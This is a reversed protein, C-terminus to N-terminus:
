HLLQGSEPASPRAEHHPVVGSEIFSKMRILDERLEREPDGGPALTPVAAAAGAPSRLDLRVTVRTGNRVPEFLASGSHDLAADGESRWALMRPRERRTWAVNWELRSDPTEQAIWRARGNGLDQVALLIAFFHPFNDFDNWADFVTEPAARVDISQELHLAAAEERRPTGAQVQRLGGLARGLLTLGAGALVLGAPMRRRLAYAGLAGGAGALAQLAPQLASTRGTRHWGQLAPVGDPSAYVTLRDEVAAVGPIKRLQALLHDKEDVLVAGSLVVHGGDATVSIAHPHAVLRGLRARVRASLVQEDPAPQSGGLLRQLSARIGDLRNGFDHAAADGANTAGHRMGQLQDRLLARRRRGLRPDTYYMAAAGLAAGALLKGWGKGSRRHQEM